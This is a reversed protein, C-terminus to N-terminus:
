KEQKFNQVIESLEEEQLKRILKELRIEETPDSTIYWLDMLTELQQHKM